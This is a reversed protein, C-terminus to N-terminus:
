NKRQSQYLKTFDVPDLNIPLFGSDRSISFIIQRIFPFMLSPCEIFIIRKLENKTSTKNFSFVSSYSLEILFIKDERNKAEVLTIVTVETLNDNISKREINLNVYLDLKDRTFKNNQAAFNEFSLDKIYQSIQQM